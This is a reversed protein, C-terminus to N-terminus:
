SSPSRSLVAQLASRMFTVCEYGEEIIEDAQSFDLLGIHQLRPILLIDPPDGALRSQVIRHQMIDISNLIVEFYGPLDTNSKRLRDGVTTRLSGPFENILKEVWAVRADMKDNNAVKMREQNQRRSVLAGTVNVAIVLDAGLARCPSVPVPNVLGGDVLWQEGIRAPAFIGPM